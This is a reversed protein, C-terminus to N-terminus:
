CIGADHNHEVDTVSAAENLASVGEMSESSKLHHGIDQEEEAHDEQELRGAPQCRLVM